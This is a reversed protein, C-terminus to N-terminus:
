GESQGAAYRRHSGEFGALVGLKAAQVSREFGGYSYVRGAGDNPYKRISFALICSRITHMGTVIPLIYTLDSIEVM